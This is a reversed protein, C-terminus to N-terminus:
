FAAKVEAPRFYEEWGSLYADLEKAMEELSRGGNRSTIRRVREKMVKLAELSVCHRVIGRAAWFGYGLYRSDRARKVGSKGGNIKLRLGACLRKSTETVGPAAAESRVSVDGDEAYRM